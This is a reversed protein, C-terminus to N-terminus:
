LKLKCEVRSRGFAVHLKRYLCRRNDQIQRDLDYFNNNGRFKMKGLIEKKKKVMLSSTKIEYPVCENSSEERRPRSHCGRKLNVIFDDKVIYYTSSNSQPKISSTFSTHYRSM